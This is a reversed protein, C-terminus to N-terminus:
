NLYFMLLIKAYKVFTYHFLLDYMDEFSLKGLKDFVKNLGSKDSGGGQKEFFQILWSGLRWKWGFYRKMKQEYMQLSNEKGRLYSDVTEAAFRGSFLAHRIGEGVFPYISFVTDGLGLIQERVFVKTFGMSCKVTSGHKELVQYNGDGIFDHLLLEVYEVMPRGVYKQYKMTDVGIGVKFKDKGTPFIWSYGNPAYKAGMFFLLNKELKKNTFKKNVKVIYEMGPALVFPPMEDEPLHSLVARSSGSADLLVKCLVLKKKEKRGDVLTVEYLGDSRQAVKEFKNNMWVVAGKKTAEDVLFKKLLKFNFVAGRDRTERWEVYKDDFQLSMTDWFSGVVEKPLRFISLTEMPTGGSSFNNKSFDTVRDVILVKWNQAALERAAQGGAPGAGIIVVDFVLNKSM